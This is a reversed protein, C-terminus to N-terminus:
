NGSIRPKGDKKLKPDAALVMTQLATYESEGTRLKSFDTAAYDFGLEADVYSAFSAFPKEKASDPHRESIRQLAVPCERPDYGAAEVYRLGVRDAHEILPTWYGASFAENTILRGAYGAAFPTPILLAVDIAEQTHKHTRSHYADMAIIAALDDSLLCALQAENQLKTITQAPILVTGSDRSLPGGFKKPSQVVYFHFHIKAPDSDPLKKQWEPVLKQGFSNVAEQLQRSPLIGFSQLFFHVTGPVNKDYDPLDIKFDSSNRFKQEDAIDEDAVFSLQSALLSSDAQRQAQYRVRVNTDFRNPDSVGQPLQIKTKPDVAIEYGDAYVKGRWGAGERTLAPTWDEAGVGSLKIRAGGEMLEVEKATIVHTQADEAGHVFVHSGPAISDSSFTLFTPPSTANIKLQTSSTTVVRQQNLKFGAPPTLGTVYGERTVHAQALVAPALILAFISFSLCCAFRIM